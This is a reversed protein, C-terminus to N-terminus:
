SRAAASRLLTATEEDLPHFLELRLHAEAASHPQALQLAVSAVSARRDGRRLRLYFVGSDLPVTEAAAGGVLRLRVLRQELQGRQASAGAAQAERMFFATVYAITTEWDEVWPRLLADDLLLDIANWPAPPVRDLFMALFRLAGQNVRHVDGGSLLSMAPYPDHADLLASVQRDLEFPVAPLAPRPWEVPLGVAIALENRGAETLGLAKALGDVMERSPRSRGTELFSVHRVSVGAREALAHQSLSRTTRWRRLLTGFSSV